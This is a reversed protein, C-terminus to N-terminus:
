SDVERNKESAPLVETKETKIRTPLIETKRDKTSESHIETKTGDKAAATNFLIQTKESIDVTSGDVWTKIEQESVYGANPLVEEQVDLKKFWSFFSGMLSFILVAIGALFVFLYNQVTYYSPQNLIDTRNGNQSQYYLFVFILGGAIMMTSVARLVKNM